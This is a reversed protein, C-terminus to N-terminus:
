TGSQSQRAEILAWLQALTETEGLDAFDLDLGQEEWAMALNMARMSDLGLDMLNGDDPLDAPDLDMVDAIQARLDELTM